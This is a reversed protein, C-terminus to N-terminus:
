INEKGAIDFLKVPSVTAYTTKEDVVPEETTIEGDKEISVETTTKITTKLNFSSVNTTETTVTTTKKSGDELNETTVKPEKTETTTKSENAMRGDVTFKGYGMSNPTMTLVGDVLYGPKTYFEHNNMTVNKSNEHGWYTTDDTGDFNAEWLIPNQADQAFAAGTPMASLLMSAGLLTSLLKERMKAM